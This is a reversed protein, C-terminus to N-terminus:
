TCQNETGLFQFGLGSSLQGMSIQASLRSSDLLAARRGPVTSDPRKREQINLWEPSASLSMHLVKLTTANERERERERETKGGFGNGWRVFNVM